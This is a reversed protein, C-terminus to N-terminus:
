WSVESSRAYHAGRRSGFAWSLAAWVPLAFIAGGFTVVPLIALLNAGSFQDQGFVIGFIAYALVGVLSFLAGVGPVVWWPGDAGFGTREATKGLTFGLIVAIFATLGFPTPQLCDIAFGSVFGVLAGYEAGGLLAAAMPLLWVIEPHAGGIRINLIVSDQVAVVIIIVLLLRLLVPWRM